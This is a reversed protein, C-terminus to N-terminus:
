EGLARLQQLASGSSLPAAEESGYKYPSSYMYQQKGKDDLWYLRPKGTLEVGVPLAVIVSGNLLGAPATPVSRSQLDVFMALQGLPDKGARINLATQPARESGGALKLVRIWSEHQLPTEQDAATLLLSCCLALLALVRLRM